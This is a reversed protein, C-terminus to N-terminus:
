KIFVCSWYNNKGNCFLLINLNGIKNSFWFLLQQQHNKKKNGLLKIM